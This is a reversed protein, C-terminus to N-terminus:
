RAQPKMSRPRVTGKPPNGPHKAVRERAMADVAEGYTLAQMANEVIRWDKGGYVGFTMSQRASGKLLAVSSEPIGALELATVFSHRISHFVTGPDSLGLTRRWKGFDVSLGHSRKGRGNGSALESLLFGDTSTEGLRQVMPAIVPHIPISRVANGNKGEGVCLSQGDVDAVEICCLEELRAGTYMALLVVATMQPRPFPSRLLTLLEADRWQRRRSKKGRKGSAILGAPKRFPNSAIVEADELWAFFSAVHSVEEIMTRESIAVEGGAGSGRRKNRTKIVSEVHKIADKRTIDRPDSRVGFARVLAGLYSRKAALTVPALPNPGSGKQTLYEAVWEDLPRYNRDGLRKYARQITEVASAPMDLPHGTRPHRPGKYTNLHAEVAMDLALEAPCPALEEAEDTWPDVDFVAGPTVIGADIAQRQHEAEREVSRVDAIPFPREPVALESQIRVAAAPALRQAERKDRTGLSRTVEAPAGQAQLQRSVYFRIFWTQRRLKLTYPANATM